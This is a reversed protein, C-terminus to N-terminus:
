ILVEKSFLRKSGLHHNIIIRMLGKIEHLVQAKNGSYLDDDLYNAFSLLSSGSISGNAGSPVEIFGYHFKYVYFKNIKINSFDLGYGITSFIQKEFLRLYKQPDINQALGAITQTYSAFLKPCPDHKPLIRYILENLYLGCVNNLGLDYYAISETAQLTKLDHKGYFQLANFYFPQLSSGFKSTTRKAGNAVISIMGHDETLVDLLLSTEKYSRTYIIFSRCLESM